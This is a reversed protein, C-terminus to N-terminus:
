HTFRILLHMQVQIVAIDADTDSGIVTGLAKFGSAFSLEVESAGEVVHQNTIIHGESDLV